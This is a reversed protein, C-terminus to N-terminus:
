PPTRDSGTFLVVVRETAPLRGAEALALCGALGATGTADVAISTTARGIEHARVLTEEPVVVPGGGTESMARVVALWDYTEDDLIGSALSKPETPWPEM